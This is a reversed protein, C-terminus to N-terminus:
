LRREGVPRKRRTGTGPKPTHHHRARGARGLCYGGVGVTMARRRWPVGASREVDEEAEPHERLLQERSLEDMRQVEAQSRRRM